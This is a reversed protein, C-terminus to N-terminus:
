PWSGPCCLDIPHRSNPRHEVNSDVVKGIRTSGYTVDEKPAKIKLKAISWVVGAEIFRACFDGIGDGICVLNEGVDCRLKDVHALPISFIKKDNIM